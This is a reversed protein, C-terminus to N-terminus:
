DKQMVLANTGRSASWVLEFGVALLLISIFVLQETGWILSRGLAAEYFAFMSLGLWGVGNVVCHAHRCRWFNAACWTGGALFALGDLGLEPRAPLLGAVPLMAAVTVYFLIVPMGTRPLFRDVLRKLSTDAPLDAPSWGCLARASTNTTCEDSRLLRTAM